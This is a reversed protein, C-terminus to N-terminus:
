KAGGFALTMFDALPDKEPGAKETTVTDSSESARFGAKKTAAPLDGQLEKVAANVAALTDNLTKIQEAQTKLAASLTDFASASKTTLDAVQTEVDKNAAKAVATLIATDEPSLELSDPIEDGKKSMGADQADQEATKTAALIKEAAEPGLLEKLKEENINM